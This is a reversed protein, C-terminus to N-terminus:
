QGDGTALEALSPRVVRDPWQLDIPWNQSFWQIAERCRRVGIDRGARILEIRKGDHMVRTSVTAEALRTGACYADVLALLSDIDNM